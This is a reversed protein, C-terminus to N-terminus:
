QRQRLAAFLGQITPDNPPSYIAARQLASLASTMDGKKQYLDVLALYADREYGTLRTISTYSEIAEDIKGQARQVEALAIFASPQV